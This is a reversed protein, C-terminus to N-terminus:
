SFTQPAQAALGEQAQALCRSPPRGFRRKFATTFNCLHSYGVKGAVESVTYHGSSILDFATRMRQECLYDSVSQGFIERFGFNLKNRNIGFRRALQEITPPNALNEDISARVREIAARDAVSLRTHRWGREALASIALCLLQEVTASVFHQRFEGELKMNLLGATAASMVPLLPIDFDRLRTERDALWPGLSGGCSALLDPYRRRVYRAHFAICVGRRIIGPAARWLYTSGPPAVTLSCSPGRRRAPGLGEVELRGDGELGIYLYGYQDGVYEAWTAALTSATGRWDTIIAHLGDGACVIETFGNGENDEASPASLRLGPCSRYPQWGAIRFGPVRESRECGVLEALDYSIRM